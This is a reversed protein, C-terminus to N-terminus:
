IFPQVENHFYSEATSVGGGKDMSRISVSKHVYRDDMFLFDHIAASENLADIQTQNLEECTDLHIGVICVYPGILNVTEIIEEVSNLCLDVCLNTKKKLM